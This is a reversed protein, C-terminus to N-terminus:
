NVTFGITRKPKEPEKPVSTLLFNLQSIHQILTAERGEVLGHFVLLVSEEYGIKTVEMLISQGFNTLLLGIDHNEDLSRQFDLVYRKIIEFQTNSYRKSGPLPQLMPAFNTGIFDFDSLIYVGGKESLVM